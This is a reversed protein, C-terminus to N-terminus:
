IIEDKKVAEAVSKLFDDKDFPKYLFGTTNLKKAQAHEEGDTYGTIFIEPIQKKERRKLSERIKRITEVGDIEAMRIDSIVLNFDEKEVAGLAEKGNEVAVVNYGELELLRGLSKVVLHNDDIVLINKAM